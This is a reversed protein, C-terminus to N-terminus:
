QNFENLTFNIGFREERDLLTKFNMYNYAVQFKIQENNSKSLLYFETIDANVQKIMAINDINISHSKGEIMVEIFKTTSM